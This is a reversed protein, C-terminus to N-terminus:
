LQGLFEHGFTTSSVCSPSLSPYLILFQATSSKHCAQEDSLGSVEQGSGTMGDGRRLLVNM